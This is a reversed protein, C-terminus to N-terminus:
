LTGWPDAVDSLSVAPCSGIECPPTLVTECTDTLTLGKFPTYVKLNELNIYTHFNIVGLAVTCRILQLLSLRNYFIALCNNLM